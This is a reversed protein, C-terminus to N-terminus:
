VAIFLQPLAKLERWRATIQARREKEQAVDTALFARQEALEKATLCKHDRGYGPREPESAECIMGEFTFRVGYWDREVRERQAWQPLNHGNACFSASLFDSEDFLAEGYWSPYDVKSRRLDTGSQWVVHVHERGVACKDPHYNVTGWPPGRFHGADDILDDDVLQRFVALTVQKGSITLTKVEVTATKIEANQVTLIAM